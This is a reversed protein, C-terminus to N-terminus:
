MIAYNCSYADRGNAIITLKEIFSSSGNVVGINDGDADINAGDALKNVEFDVSLRANYWDLPTAEGTNDAIFRIGKRNQNSNNAPLVSLSQDLVFVVDEYRDLYKPNRFSKM